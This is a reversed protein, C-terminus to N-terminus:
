ENSPVRVFGTKVVQANKPYDTLVEIRYNTGLEKCLESVADWCIEEYTKSSAENKLKQELRRSGEKVQKTFTREKQDKESPNYTWTMGKSPMEEAYEKAIQPHPFEIGFVLTVHHTQALKVVMKLSTKEEIKHSPAQPLSGMHESIQYRVEDIFSPTEELQRWEPDRPGVEAGVTIAGLASKQERVQAIDKAHDYSKFLSFEMPAFKGLKGKEWQSIVKAVAQLLKQNYEEDGKKYGQKPHRKRFGKMEIEVRLPKQTASFLSTATDALMVLLEALTMFRSESNGTRQIATLQSAELNAIELEEPEKKGKEWTKRQESSLQEYIKSEHSLIAQGDASLFVDCEVGDLANQGISERASSFAEPSNEAPRNVRRDDDDQILGGMTRNTPGRGRHAVVIPQSRSYTLRRIERLLDMNTNHQSTLSIGVPSKLLSSGMPAILSVAQYILWATRDDKALMEKVNVLLQTGQTFLSEVISKSSKGQISTTIAQSLQDLSDAVKKTNDTANSLALLNKARVQMLGAIRNIRRWNQSKQKDLLTVQIGNSRKVIEEWLDKSNSYEIDRGEALKKIFTEQQEPKFSKIASPPNGNWLDEIVQSVEKKVLAGNEKKFFQRQITEMGSTRPSVLHKLMAGASHESNSKAISSQPKEITKTHGISGHLFTNQQVCHTLEHALLRQGQQSEPNYEGRRFFVDQRTTFAKAQISRNLQDAQADTHVRVGSFDAGFAQEMPKRITEALPQGSSRSRGIEAELEPPAPIGSSPNQLAPKMQLKDDEDNEQRQIAESRQSSQPTNIQNVVQAAIRDAEQEYKDGVPGITLKPQIIPRNSAQVPLNLAEHLIPPAEIPESHQSLDRDGWSSQVLRSQTSTAVPKSEAKASTQQQRSM